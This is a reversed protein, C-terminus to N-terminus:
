RSYYSLLFICLILWCQDQAFNWIENHKEKARRAERGRTRKGKERSDGSNPMESDARSVVLEDTAKVSPSLGKLRSRSLYSWGTLPSCRSNTENGLLVAKGNMPHVWRRAVKRRFEVGMSGPRVITEQKSNWMEKAYLLVPDWNSQSPKCWWLATRQNIPQIVERFPNIVYFCIM